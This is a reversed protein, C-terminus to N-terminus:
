ETKDLFSLVSNYFLILRLALSSGEVSPCNGRPKFFFLFLFIRCSGSEWPEQETGVLCGELTFTSALKWTDLRWWPCQECYVFWDAKHHVCWHRTLRHSICDGPRSPQACALMGAWLDQSSAEEPALMYREFQVCAMRSTQSILFWFMLNIHHWAVFISSFGLNNLSQSSSFAKRSRKTPEQPLLRHVLQSQLNRLHALDEMQHIRLSEFFGRYCNMCTWTLFSGTNHPRSPARILASKRTM